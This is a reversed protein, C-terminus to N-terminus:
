RLWTLTKNNFSYLLSSNALLLWKSTIKCINQIHPNRENFAAKGQQDQKDYIINYIEVSCKNPNEINFWIKPKVARVDRPTKGYRMKTQRETFELYEKGNGDTNL